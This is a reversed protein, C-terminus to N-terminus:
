GDESDSDNIDSSEPTHAYAERTDYGEPESVPDQLVEDSAGTDSFALIDKVVDQVSEIEFAAKHNQRHRM